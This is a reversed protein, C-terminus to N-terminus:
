ATVDGAGYRTLITDAADFCRAIDRSCWTDDIDVPHYVTRPRNASGTGTIAVHRDAVM